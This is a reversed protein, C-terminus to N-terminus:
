SKAPEAAKPNPDDTSGGKKTCKAQTMEMWGKGKCGNNHKCTNANTQCGGKGKCANVGFCHVKEVKKGAQAPTSGALSAGAAIMGTVAAGMLIRTTQKKM